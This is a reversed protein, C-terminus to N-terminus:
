QSVPLVNYKHTCGWTTLLLSSSENVCLHWLKKALLLKKKQTRTAAISLYQVFLALIATNYLDIIVVNLLSHGYNAKINCWQLPPICFHRQLGLSYVDTQLPASYYLFYFPTIHLIHYKCGCM